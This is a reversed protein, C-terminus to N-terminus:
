LPSSIDGSDVHFGKRVALTFRFLNVHKTFATKRILVEQCKLHYLGFRGFALQSQNVLLNLEM